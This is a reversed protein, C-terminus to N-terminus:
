EKRFSGRSGKRGGEERGRGAGEGVGQAGVMPAPIPTREDISFENAPVRIAVIRHVSTIHKNARVIADARPRGPRPPM